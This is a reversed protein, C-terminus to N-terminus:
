GGAEQQRMRERRISKPELGHAVRKEGGGGRKTYDSKHSKERM